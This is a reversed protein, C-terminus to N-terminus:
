FGDDSVVPVVQVAEQVVQVVWRVLLLELEKGIPGHIPPEARLEEVAVRWWAVAVMALTVWPGDGM